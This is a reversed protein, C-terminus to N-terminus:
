IGRFTEDKMHPVHAGWNHSVHGEYTPCADWMHLVLSKPPNFIVKFGNYSSKFQYNAKIAPPRRKGADYYYRVNVAWDFIM